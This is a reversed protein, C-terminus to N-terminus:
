DPSPCFYFYYCEGAILQAVGDRRRKRKRKRRERQPSNRFGMGVVIDNDDDHDEEDDDADDDEEEEEDDDEEDDDDDGDEEEEEDDEDEWMHENDGRRNLRLHATGHTKMKEYLTARTVKRKYEWDGTQWKPIFSPFLSLAFLLGPCAPALM